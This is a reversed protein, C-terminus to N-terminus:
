RQKTKYRNENMNPRVQMELFRKIASKSLGYMAIYKNSYSQELSLTVNARKVVYFGISVDCYSESTKLIQFAEFM